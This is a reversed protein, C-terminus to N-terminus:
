RQYIIDLPKKAGRVLVSPDPAIMGRGWSEAYPMEHNWEWSMRRAAIRWEGNRKEFRDFLRAMTLTDFIEGDKKIRGFTTVYGEAYALSDSELEILVNSISHTMVRAKPLGPAVLDVYDSAKGSFTGGHDETADPHYCRRLADVDARDVSRLYRVLVEYIAQKDLLAQVEPDRTGTNTATTM